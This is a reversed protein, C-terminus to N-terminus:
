RLMKLFAVEKESLARWKGRPIDKKTLGAFAVRDLRVVQYDLSEFMRKVVHYKGSHLEVSVLKRDDAKVFSVLDPRIMGDDLEIGESLKKQDAPKLNHDLYAYYVKRIKYGPHTLKKALEGDNTFLLLGTTNRDLRGVPFIRERCANSVLVMVTKREFPDDTTTIYGKPKNLLIYQKKENKILKGDFEVKDTPTVCVGMKTVTTGNVKVLGAAIYEDAKRRSCIGSSALYRNLRVSENEGAQNEASKFKNQPKKYLKVGSKPKKNNKNM